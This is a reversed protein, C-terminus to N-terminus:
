SNADRKTWGMAIQVFSGGLCLSALIMLMGAPSWRGAYMQIGAVIADLSFSLALALTWEVVPERLRLFRVLTMGPCVFLFWMAIIPRLVTGTLTFNVLWAASASFIIITPWLWSFKM